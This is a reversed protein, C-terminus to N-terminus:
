SRAQIVLPWMSGISFSRVKEFGQGLAPYVKKAYDFLKRLNHIRFEDKIDLDNAVLFGKLYKEAAQHCHFLISNLYEDNEFLIEASGLDENGKAFWEKEIKLLGKEMFYKAKM